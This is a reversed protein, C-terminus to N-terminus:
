TSRVASGSSPRKRTSGGGATVDLANASGSSSGSGATVDIAAGTSAGDAAIEIAGGKSGSEGARDVSGVASVSEAAVVSGWASRVGAIALLGLSGSSDVQTATGISVMDAAVEISSGM